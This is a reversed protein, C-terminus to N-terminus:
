TLGQYGSVLILPYRKNKTDFGSVLILPLEKEEILDIGLVRIGQYGSVLIPRIAGIESTL